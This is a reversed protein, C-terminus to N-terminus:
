DIQHQLYRLALATIIGFSLPGLSCLVPLWFSTGTLSLPACFAGALLNAGIWWGVKEFVLPHLVRAQIAGLISGFIAGMISLVWAVGTVFTMLVWIVFFMGILVIGLVGALASWGVWQYPVISFLRRILWAQSVGVISGTVLGGVLAGAIGFLKICLATAYLGLSWAVCNIIVWQIYPNM